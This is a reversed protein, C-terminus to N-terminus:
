KIFYKALQKDILDLSTNSLKIGKIVPDYYIRQKSITTIQNILVISDKNYKQIEKEQKQLLNSMYNYKEKMEKYMEIRVLESFTENLKEKEKKLNENMLLYLENKIDINSYNNYNKNSKKSSLPVVTLNGSKINDKKSIVVCYHLGGLETGINYGLNVKIISGRKYVGSKSVDFTKEEKHYKSFDEFWYSLLHAQKYDKEYIHTKITYDIDNLAINKHNNADLENNKYEM